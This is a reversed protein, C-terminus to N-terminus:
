RRLLDQSGWCLEPSRGKDEGKYPGVYIQDHTQNLLFDSSFLLEGWIILINTKGKDRDRNWSNGWNRSPIRWSTPTTVTTRWSGRTSTWKLSSPSTSNQWSPVAWATRSPSSPLSSSRCSGAPPVSRGPGGILPIVNLLTTGWCCFVKLTM